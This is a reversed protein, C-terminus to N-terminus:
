AYEPEAELAPVNLMLVELALRPNANRELNRMTERISRIAHRISNLDLQRAQEEIKGRQDINVMYQDTGSKFLMLDRWWDLWLELRKRVTNRSKGFEQAMEAAYKFRGNIDTFALSILGELNLQRKELLSEDNMASIAWGICGHSLRALLDSQESSAQWKERLIQRIDEVPVPELEIRQCRSHITPLLFDERTTLLLFVTNAPPEELTKLLSNAAGESMLEAGDIIIVRYGGEYPNLSVTRQMERVQEVGISKVATQEPGANEALSIMQVDSHNGSAIRDCTRCLGCPRDESPCNLAQAIAIALTRKGVHEPGTLLCAHSLRGRRLSNELAEVARQQGIIQWM